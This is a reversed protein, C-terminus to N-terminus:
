CARRAILLSKVNWPLLAELAEATDAAPLNECIYNLYIYPELGNARASGV